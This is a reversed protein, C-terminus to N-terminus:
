KEGENVSNDAHDHEIAMCIAALGTRWASDGHDIGWTEDPENGKGSGEKLTSYM